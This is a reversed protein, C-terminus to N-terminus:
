PAAASRNQYWVWMAPIPAIIGLLLGAVIVVAGVALPAVLVAGVLAILAGVLFLLIAVAGIILSTVSAKRQSMQKTGSIHGSQGNIWIPYVKEGERYYTVFAPALMQTWNLNSYAARMSWNRIHHAESAAQCDLAATGNFASEADPWAVDPAQDPIRVVSGTMARASYAKRARYDYGGLRSMWREHDELAPVAVNDYHRKLRGLRPEWRVRTEAVEQSVWQAGVYQERFTAAQYDYGMEAQWTAEVDGDVLWLPLYYRRTRRLLLEPELDDPRFRIGQAWKALLGAMSEETVAFPVVLEPPEWRLREPQSSLSDQLCTPCTTLPIDTPTLHASHCHECYSVQLALGWAANSPPEVSMPEPPTSEQSM